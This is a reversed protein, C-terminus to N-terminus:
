HDVPALDTPPGGLYDFIPLLGAICGTVLRQAGLLRISYMIGALRLGILYTRAYFTNRLLQGLGEWNEYQSYARIIVNIALQVDLRMAKVVEFYLRANARRQRGVSRSVGLRKLADLDAGNLLRELMTLRQERISEPDEGQSVILPQPLALMTAERNITMSGHEIESGTRLLHLVTQCDAMYVQYSAWLRVMMEQTVVPRKYRM